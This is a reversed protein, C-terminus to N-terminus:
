LPAPANEMIVARWAMLEPTETVDDGTLRLDRGNSGIDDWYSVATVGQARMIGACEYLWSARASGDRDSALRAVGFEPLEISQGIIDRWRWLPALFAAPDPYSERWGDAYVDVAPTGIGTYFTAWDGRGKGPGNSMTWQYTQTPTLTVLNASPHDHVWEALRYYRRRYVTPDERKRDAEHRWCLTVPADVEDLWTEVSERAAEDSPWDQFVCAPVIGPDIARLRAIRKDGTVPRWAPLRKSPYGFVRCMRTGPYAPLRKEYASPDVTTGVIM